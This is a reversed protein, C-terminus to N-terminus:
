NMAADAVGDWAGTSGVIKREAKVDLHELDQTYSVDKLGLQGPVKPCRMM